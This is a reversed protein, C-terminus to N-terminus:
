VLGDCLIHTNLEIVVSVKLMTLVKHSYVYVEVPKHTLVPKLSNTNGFIDCKKSLLTTLLKRIEVSM